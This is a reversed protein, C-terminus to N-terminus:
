VFYGQPNEKGALVAKFDELAGAYNDPNFSDFSRERPLTISLCHLAMRVRMRSRLDEDYPYGVIDLFQWRLEPPYYWWLLAGLDFAPDDMAMCDLDVIYIEADSTFLWNANCIDNHSAVLGETSFRDIQLALEDLSDEVFAAVHPVRERYHGWKLRLANLAQLGAHKHSSLAAAPLIQKVGPHYHMHRVLAAVTQLRNQFDIRSPTQGAVLPQVIISVGNELRGFSLVPPTLGVDAMALYREVEVGIKVFYRQGNGEVFYTEKGTGQPLSFRWDSISLNKQLFGLVYQQHKQRNKM